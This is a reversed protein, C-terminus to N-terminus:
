AQVPARLARDFLEFTREWCRESAQEDYTPMDPIM